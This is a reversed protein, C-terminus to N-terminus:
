RWRRPGRGLDAYVDLSLSQPGDFVPIEDFTSVSLGTPTEDVEGGEVTTGGDGIATVYDLGWQAFKEMWAEQSSSTEVLKGVLIAIYAKKLAEDELPIALPVDYSARELQADVIRQAVRSQADFFPREAEDDDFDAALDEAHGAMLDRMRQPGEVVNVVDTWTAYAM